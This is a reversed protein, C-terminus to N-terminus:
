DWILEPLRSSAEIPTQNYLLHFPFDDVPDRFMVRKGSGPAHSNDIASAM